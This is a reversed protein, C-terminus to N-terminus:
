PVTASSTKNRQELKEGGAVGMQSSKGNRDKEDCSAHGKCNGAFIGLSSRDAGGHAVLTRCVHWKALVNENSSECEKRILVLLTQRLKM